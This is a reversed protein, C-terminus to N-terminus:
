EKAGHSKLFNVMELQHSAHAKRLATEDSLNKANIDAGKELLLKAVELNGMRSAWMLATYGRINKPSGRFIVKETKPNGLIESNLM